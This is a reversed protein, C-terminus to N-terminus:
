NMFLKKYDKVDKRCVFCKNKCEKTCKSCCTHGCPIIVIDVINSMCINCFPVYSLTNIKNIQLKLFNIIQINNKYLKIKDLLDNKEFYKKLYSNIEFNINTLHEDLDNLSLLNNYLNKITSYQNDYDQLVDQIDQELEITETFINKYYKKITEINKNLESFNIKLNDNISKEVEKQENLTENELDNLFSQPDYNINVNKMDKSIKDTITNISSKVEFINFIRDQEDKFEKQLNSFLNNNLINTGDNNRFINDNYSNEDKKIISSFKDTFSNNNNVELIQYNNM